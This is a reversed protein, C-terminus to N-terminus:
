KDFYNMNHNMKPYNNDVKNCPNMTYYNNSCGKKYNPIGTHFTYLIHNNPNYTGVM